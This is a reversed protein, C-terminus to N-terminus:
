SADPSTLSPGLRLWAKFVSCALCLGVLRECRVSADHRGPGGCAAHPKAALRGHIDHNRRCAAATAPPVDPIHHARALSLVVEARTACKCAWWELVVGAMSPVALRYYTGLGKLCERSRCALPLPPVSPAAAQSVALWAWGHWSGASPEGAM